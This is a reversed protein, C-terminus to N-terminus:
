DLNEIRILVPGIGVPLRRRNVSLVWRQHIRRSRRSLPLSVVNDEVSRAKRAVALQNARCSRRDQVVAHQYLVVHFEGPGGRVAYARGVFWMSRLQRKGQLVM